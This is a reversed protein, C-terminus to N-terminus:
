RHGLFPRIELSSDMVKEDTIQLEVTISRYNDTAHFNATFPKARVPRDLGGSDMDHARTPTPTAWITLPKEVRICHILENGLSALVRAKRRSLARRSRRDGTNAM